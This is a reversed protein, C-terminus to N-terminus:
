NQDDEALIDELFFAAQKQRLTKEHTSRIEAIEEM